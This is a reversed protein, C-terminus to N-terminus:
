GRYSPGNVEANHNMREAKEAQQRNSKILSIIEKIAEFKMTVSKQMGWLQDSIEALVTVNAALQQYTKDESIAYQLADETPRVGHYKNVYGGQLKLSNYLKAALEEKERIADEKRKRIKSLWYATTEFQRVALSLEEAVQEGEYSSFEEPDLTIAKGEHLFTILGLPAQTKSSTNNM